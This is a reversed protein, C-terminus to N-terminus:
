VIMKFYRLADVIAAEKEPPCQPVKADEKKSLNYNQGVDLGCKRKVQSIYLSSVKLGYKELVYAKIQEYTAGKQFGSMDMDELSFEVRVKKSGIEGKSLLVVTEVHATRPFLDVAQAKVAPYGLEGFRKVDRALTAPDCSVYVIREPAMSALIEPVEPALGKRPPDVCIVQPRVGEAALQFAAEGADGCLFRANPVRNRAANAQADQVAEPVIEAGIVQGARQALALSITGIGCYLDLVTERGTLGAFELAQAYLRETQARNIQFFSPVSLRFTMGCLREELFDRGWIIRYNPGLIVNTDKTNTNLVLGALAPVAQRLAQVLEPAHPLRAGNAVVCCLAEGAQNTRVYLHRILGQRTGEDYAPIRYREMWGKFARRLTTVAEPQLLCDAVDLVDHSRARYYGVALGRKEQAVPFQVKNRYRLPDEAGLVQPLELSVGGVRTLADQVRQRKARLEEKYTMHRYQCGGCRGALPCDLEVREPSPVLLRVARGWAVNTKVKLLQIEWREGLITGPIFVVRGEWRAVGMGEATYGTIELTLSANKKWGDM